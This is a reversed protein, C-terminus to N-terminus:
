DQPPQPLKAAWELWPIMKEVRDAPYENIAAEVERVDGYSNRRASPYMGVQQAIQVQWKKCKNYASKAKDRVASSGAQGYAKIDEQLGKDYSEYGKMRAPEGFNNVKYPKGRLWDKIEETTAFNKYKGENKGWSETSWMIGYRFGVISEIVNDIASQPCGANELKTQIDAKIWDSWAYRHKNSGKGVISRRNSSPMSNATKTQKLLPLLDKRLEPNEHALRIVQTRLSATAWRQRGKQIAPQAEPSRMAKIFEKNKNLNRQLRLVGDFEDKFKKPLDFIKRSDLATQIALGTWDSSTTPELYLLKQDGVTYGVSVKWDRGMYRQVDKLFDQLNLNGVSIFLEHRVSSATKGGDEEEDEGMAGLAAEPDFNPKKAKELAKKKDEPSMNSKQIADKYDKLLEAKTKEKKPKDKKGIFESRVKDLRKGTEGKLGKLLKQLDRKESAEGKFDKLEAEVKARAQSSSLLNGDGDTVKKYMKKDSDHVENKKFIGMIAKEKALEGVPKANIKGKSKQQGKDGIPLEGNERPKKEPKPQANKTAEVLAKDILKRLVADKPGDTQMRPNDIHVQIQDEVADWAKTKKLDELKFGRGQTLNKVHEKMLPLRDKGPANWLDPLTFNGNVPHIGDPTSKDGLQKKDEAPKEYFDQPKKKTNKRGEPTLSKMYEDFLRKAGEETKAKEGSLKKILPLMKERLHPNEFAMKIAQNRVHNKDSM